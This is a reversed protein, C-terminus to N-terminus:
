ISKMYYNYIWQAWVSKVKYKLAPNQEADQTLEEIIPILSLSDTPWSEGLWRKIYIKWVEERVSPSQTVLNNMAKLSFSWLNYRMFWRNFSEKYIHWDFIKKKHMRWITMKIENQIDESNTSWTSIGAHDWTLSTYISSANSMLRKDVQWIGTYSKRSWTLIPNEHAIVQLIYKINPLTLKRESKSDIDYIVKILNPKLDSRTYEANKKYKLNM